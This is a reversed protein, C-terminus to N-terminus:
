KAFRRRTPQIGNHFHRGCIKRGDLARVTFYRTALTTICPPFRRGDCSRKTVLGRVLDLGTRRSQSYPLIASCFWHFSDWSSIHFWWGGPKDRLLVSAVALALFMIAFMIILLLFRIAKTPPFVQRGSQFTARESRAARWLWRLVVALVVTTILHPLFRM